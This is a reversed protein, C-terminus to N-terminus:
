SKSLYLVKDSQTQESKLLEGGATHRTKEELRTEENNKILAPRRVTDLHIRVDTIQECESSIKDVRVMAYILGLYVLCNAISYVM